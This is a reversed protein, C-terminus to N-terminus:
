DGYNVFLIFHIYNLLHLYLLEGFIHLFAVISSSSLKGKLL